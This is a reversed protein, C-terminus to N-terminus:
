MGTTGAVSVASTPSTSSGPLDLNYPALIANSSKLRPASCSRPISLYSSQKFEPSLSQLNCHSSIIGTCELRPMLVLSWGTDMMEKLLSFRTHFVYADWKVSLTESILLKLGAQGVHRFGM